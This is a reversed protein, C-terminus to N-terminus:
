VTKIKLSKAMSEMDKGKDQLGSMNVCSLRIMSRGSAFVSNVGMTETSRNGLVMKTRVRVIYNISSTGYSSTLLQAGSDLSIENPVVMGMAEKSYQAEFDSEKGKVELIFGATDFSSDATIQCIRSDDSKRIFLQRNAESIFWGSPVAIAFQIGNLTLFNNSSKELQRLDRKPSESAEGSLERTLKELHDAAAAGESPSLVISTSNRISFIWAVLVAAIVLFGALKLGFGLSNPRKLKLPPEVVKDGDKTQINNDTSM